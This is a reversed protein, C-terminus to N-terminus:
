RRPHISTKLRMVFRRFKELKDDPLTALKWRIWARVNSDSFCSLRVWVPGTARTHMRINEGQSCAKCIVAVYKRGISQPDVCLVKAREFEIPDGCAKCTGDDGAEILYQKRADRSRYKSSRGGRSGPNRSGFKKIILKGNADRMENGNEDLCTTVGSSRKGERTGAGILELRQTVKDWYLQKRSELYIKYGKRFM